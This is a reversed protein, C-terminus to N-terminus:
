EPVTVVGPPGGAAQQETILPEITATESLTKLLDAVTQGTKQQVLM